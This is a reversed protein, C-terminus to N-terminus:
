ATPQITLHEPSINELTCAAEEAHGFRDSSMAIGVNEM